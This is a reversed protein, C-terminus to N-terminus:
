SLIFGAYGVVQDTDGSVEGSDTYRVLDAQHGGLKLAAILAITTPIIGCMSIRNGFVTNYLGEPDLDLIRDIAMKDKRSAAQRSEYHSMDTSAVLLIKEEFESVTRALASGIEKCDDYSLAALCIPVIALEPQLYQLFPVQVELSHEREHASADERIVKSNALIRQAVKENVAVDGMPMRWIGATALAAEAGRGHHNPGLIICTQPIAVRAFTQGAVSGSYIYGAHPSVVALAKKKPSPSEPLIAQLTRQLTAKDGPYFQSAVAPYRIM